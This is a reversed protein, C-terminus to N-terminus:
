RRWGHGGEARPWAAVARADISYPQLGRGATCFSVSGRTQNNCLVRLVKWATRPRNALASPGVFLGDGGGISMGGHSPPLSCPSHPERCGFASARLVRVREDRLQQTFVNVRRAHHGERVPHHAHQVCRREVEIRLVCDLLDVPQQAVRADRDPVPEILPDGVDDPVALLDEHREVPGVEVLIAVRRDGEVEHARVASRRREHPLGDVLRLQFVAAALPLEEHDVPQVLDQVAADVDHDDRVAKPSWCRSAYRAVIPHDYAIRQLCFMVTFYSPFLLGAASQTGALPWAFSRRSTRIM